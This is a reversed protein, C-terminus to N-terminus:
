ASPRMTKALHAKIPQFSEVGVKQVLASLERGQSVVIEAQKRAHESQLSVVQALSKAGFMANAFDFSSTLNHRFADLVRANMEAMGKAAVAMSTEVTGTAEDTAEKVRLYAVRSEEVGKEAVKRITSQIDKSVAEAAAPTASIAPEIAAVEAVPEVPTFSVPEPAAPAAEAEIIPASAAPPTEIPEVLVPAPRPTALTPTKKPANAM